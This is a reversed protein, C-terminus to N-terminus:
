TIMPATVRREATAPTGGGNATAYNVSLGGGPAPGSLTLVFLMQATGSGPEAQRADNVKINISNIPTLTPDAAGGVAPDDTLVASGSENYSTSGQNSVNPWWAYPMNVTVQFTITVSDGARLNGIIVCVHGSDNVCPPANPDGPVKQRGVPKRGQTLPKEQLSSSLPTATPIFTEDQQALMLHHRGTLPGAASRKAQGASPLRREGVTLYGYMVSDRDSDDYRDPLGLRHGIEHEIATLLDLRGAPASLSDTYRRTANSANVFEVDDLPTPDIFWGRGGANRDILIVNADAEGLYAGSLDSIEFKIRDLTARQEATLGTASWRRISASVISDLQVQTLSTAINSAPFAVANSPDCGSGNAAFSFDNSTLASKNQDETAPLPEDFGSLGAPALASLVGGQALLLFSCNNGDVSGQSSVTAAM